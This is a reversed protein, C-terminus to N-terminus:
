DKKRVVEKVIAKFEDESVLGKKRVGLEKVRKLIEDAEESTAMVGMRELKYEVSRKGSKKSLLVERERGLLEPSYPEVSPPYSIVQAATVGSERKFVFDGVVPKLPSIPIKSIREVLKSAQYLKKMDVKVDIGYLKAAFVTEALDANGTKEGLGNITVHACEAGGKVSFFTCATAMGFDSHCHTMVPVNVWERLKKTLYFMTEPTAVGLTDVMVVEDAKGEEVAKRYITELYGLDARTADVAFFATYLGRTKAYQLSELVRGLVWEPTFHNAKMKYPSTAIEIIVHKVGVDACAEIDGKVARCFGWIEAKLGANLIMEVADRDEKSVVPMGAEINDLGAGHKAVVKLDKSAEIVARNITELGVIMAQYAPVIEILEKESIRKGQPLLDLECGYAKLYEVPESVYYGFTPSTSLVKFTM